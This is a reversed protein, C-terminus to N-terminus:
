LFEPGRKLEDRYLSDVGAKKDLGAANQKMDTQRETFTDASTNALFAMKPLANKAGEEM